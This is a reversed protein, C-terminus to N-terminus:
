AFNKATTKFKGEVEQWVEKTISSVAKVIPDRQEFTWSQAERAFKTIAIDTNLKESKLEAVRDLAERKSLFELNGWLDDVGMEFIIKLKCEKWPLAVKNKDVFADIEVGIPREDGTITRKIQKPKELWVVQSAYFDLAHGGSRKLPTARGFTVINDRIQSVIILSMNKTAVRANLRRLLESMKKAKASGYSGDSIERKMEADDSIADLSDLIYLSHNDTVDAETKELNAFFDEITFVSDEFIVGKTPANLLNFYRMVDVHEADVYKNTSDPFAVINHGTAQVALLSKGTSKDGVINAVRGRAWGGGLCCDLLTSGTPIFDVIDEDKFYM